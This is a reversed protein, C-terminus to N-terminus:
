LEANLVITGSLSTVLSRSRPRLLEKHMYILSKRDLRGNVTLRPGCTEELRDGRLHWVLSCASDM